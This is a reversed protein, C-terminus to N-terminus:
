TFTMGHLLDLCRWFRSVPSLAVISHILARSIRSERPFGVISTSTSNSSPENPRAATGEPAEVPAPLAAAPHFLAHEARGTSSPWSPTASKLPSPM